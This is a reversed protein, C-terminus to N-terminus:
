RKGVIAWATPLLGAALVAKITDGLIFPYFGFELTKPGTLRSLWALGPIYICVTGLLMAVAVLLASRTWGKDALFGVVVGAILFGVLFGGTAGVFTAAGGTFGAFVPLGVAGELLYAAIALGGLRAGLALAVLFVGLTQGTIPVPQLPISVQALLAIFLSGGLVLMADRALNSDPFLRNVLAGPQVANMM